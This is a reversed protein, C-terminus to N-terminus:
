RIRRRHTQQIIDCPDTLLDTSLAGTVDFRKLGVDRLQRDSLQALESVKGRNMVNRCVTALLRFPGGLAVSGTAMPRSKKQTTTTM